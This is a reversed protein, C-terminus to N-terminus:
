YHSQGTLFHRTASPRFLLVIAAIHMASAAFFMSEGFIELMFFDPWPAKENVLWASMADWIGIVNWAGIAAWAVAGRVRLILYAVPLALLGVVADGILPM